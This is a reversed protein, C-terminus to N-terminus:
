GAVSAAPQTLVTIVSVPLGGLRGAVQFHCTGEGTVNARPEGRQDLLGALTWVAEVAAVEGLDAAFLQISAESARVNVSFSVPLADAETKFLRYLAGVNGVVAASMNRTDTMAAAGSM